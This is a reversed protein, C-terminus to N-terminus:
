SPESCLQPKRSPVPALPVAPVQPTPTFRQLLGPDAFFSGPPKQNETTSTANGSLASISPLLASPTQHHSLCFDPLPTLPGIGKGAPHPPVADGGDQPVAPLGLSAVATWLCRGADRQSAWGEGAGSSGWVMDQPTPLPSDAGQWGLIVRSRDRGM